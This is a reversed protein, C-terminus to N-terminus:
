VDHILKKSDMWLTIKVPVRQNVQNIVYVAGHPTPFVAVVQGVVEFYLERDAALATPNRGLDWDLMLVDRSPRIRVVDGYILDGARREANAVRQRLPSTGKGPTVISDSM